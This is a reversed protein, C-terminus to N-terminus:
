LQRTITVVIRNNMIHPALMDMLSDIMGEPNFIGSAGSANDAAMNNTTQKRCTRTNYIKTRFECHCPIFRIMVTNKRTKRMWNKKLMISAMHNLLLRFIGALPCFNRKNDPNIRDIM